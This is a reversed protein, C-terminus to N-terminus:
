KLSMGGWAAVLVAWLYNWNGNWQQWETVAILVGVLVATWGIKAKKDM